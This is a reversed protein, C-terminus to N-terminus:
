VTDFLDAMHEIDPLLRPDAVLSFYLNQNYTGVVVGYGLTGGLMLPGFQDLCKHGAMYQTVQVGPVNTLVFNFGFQPPTFWPTRAPPPFVPQPNPNLASLLMPAMMAPPIPPATETILELGQAEGAEKIRTTETIVAWHRDLVAMPWAPLTPFMGSVRNGLAGGEGERRVSVPCMLRFNQHDTPHGHEVLYRAAAETAVTLVVDNVTGGASARLARIESFPFRRWAFTREQGIQTANWPAAVIPEGMVRTLTMAARSILASRDALLQPNRMLEQNRQMTELQEQLSDVLAQGILVSPDPMPAPDWADEGQPAPADAEFDMLVTSLEVGSVGDIMCHHVKTLLVTRDAVGSFVHTEWLPKTRELMPENVRIAEAIADNLSSGAPITHAFVHNELRFNPDDEWTAHNLNMPVFALRQRYRPILHLRGRIHAVLKEFPIDGEFVALGGGHMPGNATESYLFAADQTTLRQRVLPTATAM